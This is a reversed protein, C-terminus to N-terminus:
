LSSANKVRSDSDEGRPPRPLTKPDQAQLTSELHCELPQSVSLAGGLFCCAGRGARPKGALTDNKENHPLYCDPQATSGLVGCPVYPYTGRPSRLYLSMLDPSVHVSQGLATSRQGRPVERSGLLCSWVHVTALCGEATHPGSCLGGACWGRRRDPGHCLPCACFPTM